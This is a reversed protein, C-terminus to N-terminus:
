TDQSLDEADWSSGTISLCYRNLTVQLQHVITEGALFVNTEERNEIYDALSM